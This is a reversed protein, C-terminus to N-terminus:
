QVPAPSQWLLRTMTELVLVTQSKDAGRQCRQEGGPQLQRALQVHLCHQRMRLRERLMCARAAPLQQSGQVRRSVQDAHFGQWGVSLVM